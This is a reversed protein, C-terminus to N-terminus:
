LQREGSENWRFAARALEAGDDLGLKEKIRACYTQVTKLSVALDESIARPTQGRGLRRFVELERDSLAETATAGLREPRGILRAMIETLVDQNAFLRGARVERIAEVIQGTSERKMVYGSAGARFARELDTMEEHMSLVVIAVTPLQARLDKILDIGSGRKFSLDVIALDPPEAVMAALGTAPDGAEGVVRLDPQLRILNGLWERVFPHDDVLFIRTPPASM